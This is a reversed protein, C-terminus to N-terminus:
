SKKMTYVFIITLNKPLLVVNLALLHAMNYLKPYHVKMLSGKCFGKCYRVTLKTKKGGRNKSNSDKESQAKEQDNDVQLSMLATKNKSISYQSERSTKNVKRRHFSDHKYRKQSSVVNVDDPNLHRMMFNSKSQSWYDLVRLSLTMCLVGHLKHNFLTHYSNVATREYHILIGILKYFIMVTIVSVEVFM